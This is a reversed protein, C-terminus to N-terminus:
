NKNVRRSIRIENLKFIYSNYDELFRLMTSIIYAFCM